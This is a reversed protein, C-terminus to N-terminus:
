ADKTIIDEDIESAISAVSQFIAEPEADFAVTVSTSPYDVKASRVGALARVEREIAAACNECCLNELFYTKTVTM